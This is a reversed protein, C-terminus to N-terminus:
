VFATTTLLIGLARKVIYHREWRLSMASDQLVTAYNPKQREQRIIM